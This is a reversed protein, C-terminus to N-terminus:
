ESGDPFEMLAEKDGKVYHDVIALMREFKNPHYNVHIMAPKVTELQMTNHRVYRFLTKSNMFVYRDMVRRTVGPDVNTPSNPFFICQNFLAQDWGGTTEVAMIVKDLLAMTAETPRIYFLGSNFVFIRMSHAYRSWGMAPDDYVDDWGYATQDDFGDSMCEVDSDRVLENFPNRLTVIDVDSLLVSYGLKMFRKLIAFKLASTAHNGGNNKQSEPIQMDFLFAKVGREEVNRKTEQDLAVVMANKVGSRKVGDMWLDLMGGKRAYNINSVAVLVEDNIAVTRLFAGFAPDEKDLEASPGWATHRDVRAVALSEETATAVAKGKAGKEHNARHSNRETALDKELKRVQSQLRHITEHLEETAQKDNEDVSAAHQVVDASWTRPNRFQLIAFCVGVLFGTVSLLVLLRRRGKIAGGPIRETKAIM